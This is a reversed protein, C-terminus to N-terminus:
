AIVGGPKVMTYGKLPGLVIQEELVAVVKVQLLLVLIIVSKRVAMNWGINRPRLFIIESLLKYILIDILIVNRKRM